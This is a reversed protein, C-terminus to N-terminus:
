VRTDSGCTRGVRGQCETELRQPRCKLSSLNVGWVCVCMLWEIGVQGIGELIDYDQYRSASSLLRRLDLTQARHHYVLIHIIVLNYISNFHTLHFEFM